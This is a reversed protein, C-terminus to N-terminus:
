SFVHFSIGGIIHGRVNGQVYRGNPQEQNYGKVLNIITFLTSRQTRYAMRAFKWVQLPPQLFKQNTALNTLLTPARPLWYTLSHRFHHCNQSVSIKFRYLKIITLILISNFQQVGLQLGSLQLIPQYTLFFGCM